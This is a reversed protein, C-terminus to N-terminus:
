RIEDLFHITKFQQMPTHVRICQYLWRSINKEISADIEIAIVQELPKQALAHLYSSSLTADESYLDLFALLVCLIRIKQDSDFQRYKYVFMLLGYLKNPGSDQITFHYCMELIYHLFLMDHRALGLPMDIIEVNDLIYWQQKQRLEYNLVTGASLADHMVIATIRGLTKDLLACTNKKPAFHKLVIGTHTNM